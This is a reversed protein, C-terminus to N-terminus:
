FEFKYHIANYYMAQEANKHKLIHMLVLLNRAQPSRHPTQFCFFAADKRYRM